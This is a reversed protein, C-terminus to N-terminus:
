RSLEVVAVKSTFALVSKAMHAKELNSHYSLLVFNPVSGCGNNYNTVKSERNYVEDINKNNKVIMTEKRILFNNNSAM